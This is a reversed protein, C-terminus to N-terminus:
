SDTRQKQSKSFMYFLTTVTAFFATAVLDAAFASKGRFFLVFAGTLIALLYYVAVTRAKARPSSEAIQKTIEATSM